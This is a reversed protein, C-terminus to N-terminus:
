FLNRLLKVLGAARDFLTDAYAMEIIGSFFQDANQQVHYQMPGPMSTEIFPFADGTVSVLECCAQLGEKGGFRGYGSAKTGGFPLSQVLYNIGFDNCNVMGTSLCSSIRKMKTKDNSFVSSGLAFPCDNVMALLEAENAFSRICAVPAFAEEQCIRMDSRLNSLVTPQFFLGPALEPIRKGGCHLVAGKAVADALLAEVHLIQAPTCLSGLDFLEGTKNISRGVKISTAIHVLRDVFHAEIEKEVFIREIGICNQGGNQFVGRSAITAVRDVNVDKCVIFPDKGGLELVCKTLNESATRAILKGVKDSGTFVIQSINKSAALAHGTEGFGTVMQVLDPDGGAEVLAKRVIRLILRSSWCTFESPKIVASCGAFLGSIIHNMANTYPYNNPAFVALVPLARYEVHASKHMTFLGQGHRTEPKLCDEGHAIMWRLKEATPVIEGLLADLRSKGTDRVMVRCITDKEETTYKLLLQLFYRRQKFSTKAWSVQARKAKAIADEVQAATMNPMEGIWEATAKDYCQVFGERARLNMEPDVKAPSSTPPFDQSELPDLPVQLRPIATVTKWVLLTSVVGTIASVLLAQHHKSDISRIADLLPLLVKDVHAGLSTLLSAVHPQIIEIAQSMKHACQVVNVFELAIRLGSKSIERPPLNVQPLHM